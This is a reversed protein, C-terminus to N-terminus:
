SWSKPALFRVTVSNRQPKPSSWIPKPNRHNGRWPVGGRNKHGFYNPTIVDDTVYKCARPFETRGTKFIHKGALVFGPRFFGAGPQLKGSSRPTAMVQSLRGHPPM